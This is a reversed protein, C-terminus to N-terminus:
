RRGRYGYFQSSARSPRGGGREEDLAMLVGIRGILDLVEARTIPADGRVSRMCNSGTTCVEELAQRDAIALRGDNLIRLFMLKLEDRSPPEPESERNARFSHELWTVLHRTM